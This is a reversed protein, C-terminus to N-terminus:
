LMDIIVIVHRGIIHKRGYGLTREFGDMHDVTSTKSLGEPVYDDRWNM